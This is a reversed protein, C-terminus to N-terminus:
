SESPWCAVPICANPQMRVVNEVQAGGSNNHAVTNNGIGIDAVGAAAMFALASM